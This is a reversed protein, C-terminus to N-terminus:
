TIQDLGWTRRYTIDCSWCTPVPGSSGDPRRGLSPCRHDEPVDIGCYTVWIDLERAYWALHRHGDDLVPRGNIHSGAPIERIRVEAM